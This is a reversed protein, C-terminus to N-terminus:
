TTNKKTRRGFVLHLFIFLIGPLLYIVLIVRIKKVKISRIQLKILSSFDNHLQGLVKLRRWDLESLDKLADTDYEAMQPDGANKSPEIWHTILRNKQYELIEADSPKEAAYMVFPHTRISNECMRMLHSLSYPNLKNMQIRLEHDWQDATMEEDGFDSDRLEDTRRLSRLFLAMERDTKLDVKRLEEKTKVIATKIKREAKVLNYPNYVYYSHKYYRAGHILFGIFILSVGILLFVFRKLKM